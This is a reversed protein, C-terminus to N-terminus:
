PITFAKGDFTAVREKTEVDFVSVRYGAHGGYCVTALGMTLGRKQDANFRDWLAKNVYARNEACTYSALVGRDRMHGVLATAMAQQDPPLEVGPNGRLLLIVLLLGLAALGVIMGLPSAPESGKRSAGQDKAPGTTTQNVVACRANRGNSRSDIQSGASM